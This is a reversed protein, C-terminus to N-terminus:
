EEKKEHVKSLRVRQAFNPRDVIVDEMDLIDILSLMNALLIKVDKRYPKPDEVLANHLEVSLEGFYIEGDKKEIVKLLWLYANSWRFREKIDEVDSTFVTDLFQMYEGVQYEAQEPLEYSFLTEIKRHFLDLIEKNWQNSKVKTKDKVSNLQKDLEDVLNMDVQIAQTFLKEVKEKDREEIEVLTALEANVNINGTLGSQTANASGVISRKNDVIYTKAHLDLKIYVKWGSELCYKLVSFDSSGCLVDEMRFRIMIRKNKINSSIKSDLKRIADEKCYASIIQVSEKASGLEADIADLIEKSFLLAM